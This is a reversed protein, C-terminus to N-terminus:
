KRNSSHESKITSNTEKKVARIDLEVTENREIDAVVPEQINDNEANTLCNNKIIYLRVNAITKTNLHTDTRKTREEGYTTPQKPQMQEQHNPLQQFSLM